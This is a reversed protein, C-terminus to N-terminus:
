RYRWGGHSWFRDHFWHHGDWWGRGTYFTGVVPVFGPAYAGCARPHWYCWRSDPHYVPAPGPVGIGIGVSVGANAPEVAATVVAAGFAASAAIKTLTKMTTKMTLRRLFSHDMIDGDVPSPQRVGGSGNKLRANM